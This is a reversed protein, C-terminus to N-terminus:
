IFIFAVTIEGKKDNVFIKYNYFPVARDRYCNLILFMAMRVQKARHGVSDAGL